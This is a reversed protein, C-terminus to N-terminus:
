VVLLFMTRTFSRVAFVGLLFVDERVRHSTGWSAARPVPVAARVFGRNAPFNCTGPTRTGSAAAELSCCVPCRELNVTTGGLGLYLAVRCFGGETLYADGPDKEREGLKPIGIQHTCPRAGTRAMSPARLLQWFLASKAPPPSGCRTGPAGRSWNSAFVFVGKQMAPHKSPFPPLYLRPFFRCLAEFYCRLVPLLSSFTSPRPDRARRRGLRPVARCAEPEPSRRARRSFQAKARM